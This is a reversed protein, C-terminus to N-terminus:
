LIGEQGTKKIIHNTFVILVLSIVGKILGLATTAGFSGGGTISDFTYKGITNTSGALATSGNILALIQDYNDTMVSALEILLNMIIVPMLAPLTVTFMKRLRGGGDIECAEYLSHDITTFCSTYMLTAWGLGKWLSTISLVSWWPNPDSYFQIEEMGLASLIANVIGGDNTLFIYVIGGVAVWSIYNPIFSVTRVLTKARSSKLENIFLTFVIVLPFNTLIRLLTIFITNRISVWLGNSVGGFFNKFNYLGVFESSMGEFLNYDQFAVILGFMPAFNFVLVILLLPLIFLYLTKYKKARKFDKGIGNRIGDGIVRFFMLGRKKKKTNNKM